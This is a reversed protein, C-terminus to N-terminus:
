CVIPLHPFLSPPVRSFPTPLPSDKFPMHEGHSQGRGTERLNGTIMLHVAEETLAGAALSTQRLVLGNYHLWGGMAYFRQFRSGFYM